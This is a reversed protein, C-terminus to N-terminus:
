TKIYYDIYVPGAGLHSTLDPVNFQGPGAANPGSVQNFKYGGAGTALVDALDPYSLIDYPTGDCLLWGAPIGTGNVNAWPIIAGTGLAVDYLDQLFTQKTQKLIKNDNDSPRHIAIVDTTYSTSTSKKSSYATGALTTEFNYSQPTGNYLVTQNTVVDGTFNFQSNGILKTAITATGALSGVFTNAYINRWRKAGTGIDYVSGAYPILATPSTTAQDGITLPGVLIQEYKCTLTSSVYVNSAKLNGIVTLNNNFTSSTAVLLNGNVELDANPKSITNIGIRKDGGWIKLLTNSVGGTDIVKFSFSGDPYQNILTADSQNNRQLVFTPTTGIRLGGDNNITLLGNLRQDIDNRVFNNASVTQSTPITQQLNSAQYATGNYIAYSPTQVTGLNKTTVNVGAKITTFGDIVQNPTFTDQSIIEIVSDDVYNMVINHTVGFIDTSTSAYSGTKLASSYNPGILTFNAGNYISLQNNGTDVWIDGLQATTPEAAQQHVGAVPVFLSGDHVKLKKSNPDTTDFWLQGEIPNDPQSSNAFNELMHVLDTMVAQGYGPYNRGVLTLATDSQNINDAPVTIVYGSAEKAPDTFKITYDSAAM